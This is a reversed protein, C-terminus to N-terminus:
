RDPHGLDPVRAFPPYDRYIAGTDMGRLPEGAEGPVVRGGFVIGAIALTVVDPGSSSMAM